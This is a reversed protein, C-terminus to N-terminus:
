NVTNIVVLSVPGIAFMYDLGSSFVANPYDGINPNTIKIKIQYIPNLQEQAELVVESCSGNQYKNEDGSIDTWNQQDNQKIL